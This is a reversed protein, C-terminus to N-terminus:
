PNRGGDGGGTRLSVWGAAALIVGGGMLERMGPVEGLILLALVIGYVPELTAVVAAVRARVEGLARIFLGHAGATFVVGLLVLLGWEPLTPVRYSLSAGTLAPVAVVPTLAVAAWTVQHFTLLIPPYRTVLRRNAISLVAFTFGSVTGWFAGRTFADGWDLAPVVLAVGGFAVAAAAADGWSWREDELLLPELFATFLPFTAFTLLGVAVSSLQIAHFFTVWHVALLVGLAVLRPGDGRARPGLGIGGSRLVVGLFLGAFVVRGLVIVTPPLALLKGFLGAGGFLLVALHLALLATM